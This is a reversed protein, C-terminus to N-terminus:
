GSRKMNQVCEQPLNGVDHLISDQGKEDITTEPLLLREPPSQTLRYPADTNNAEIGKSVFEMLSVHGAAMSGQDITPNINGPGCNPDEHNELCPAQEASRSSPDACRALLSACPLLIPHRPDFM